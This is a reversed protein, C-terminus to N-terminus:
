SVKKQAIQVLYGDPYQRKSTGPWYGSQVLRLRFNLGNKRFATNVQSVGSFCEMVDDAAVIANPGYNKLKSLIKEVNPAAVLDMARDWQKRTLTTYENKTM